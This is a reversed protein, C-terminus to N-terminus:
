SPRAMSTESTQRRQTLTLTEDVWARFRQGADFGSAQGLKAAAAAYRPDNLVHQVAHRIETPRLRDSRLVLGAGASVVAAMNLFQDMNGAIGLVPVGAAFAQQSTPSGGNCIVLRSRAAAETGPLYDSLYINAPRRQPLDAGATSAMVTLPLESLQDLVKQLTTSQGSSGLTVYVAPRDPSLSNWWAPVALPPSWLIPGLIRHNPPLLSTAFLGPSDAYLVHDADTYVRRLDTGLSAMGNEQRVRNMPQCHMAFALPRAINFLARAVPIPLFRTMPLVPLPFKAPGTLYPSWYTNSVAAYPVGALRCSVSLSIRFDGVVLDPKIAEIIKLDDRVYGRLTSTDYVPSGKALADTFQQSAISQLAVSRWPQPDLFRQYRPSCAVVAEYRNPDLSNALVIPRAVHALTVAEAFFLVRQVAEM